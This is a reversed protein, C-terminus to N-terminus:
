AFVEPKCTVPVRPFTKLAAFWGNVHDGTEHDPVYINRLWQVSMRDPYLVEAQAHTPMQKPTRSTRRETTNFKGWVVTDAFMAALGTVGVGRKTVPYANNSDAFVVGPHGLIAVDFALVCWVVDEEPHWRKSSELLTRNIQTISMSVHGTWAADRSRDPCNLVAIYDLYKEEELRDRSLVAGTAAVGLLGSSTTFHLVETIGRDLAYAVVEQDVEFPEDGVPPPESGLVGSM